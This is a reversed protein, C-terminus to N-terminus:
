NRVRRRELFAREIQLREETGDEHLVDFLVKTGEPGTMLDVFDPLPMGVAPTGEVATVIDGALLGAAEAPTDAHVAQIRVGLESMAISVGLGAKPESAVVLEISWSGGERGDIEVPESRSVLMGDAREAHVVLLGPDVRQELRGERNTSYRRGRRKGATNVIVPVGRLPEGADDIVLVSLEVPALPDEPPTADDQELEAIQERLAAEVEAVSPPAPTPEATAAPSPASITRPAPVAVRPAPVEPTPRTASWYIAVMTLLFLVAVAAVVGQRRRDTM